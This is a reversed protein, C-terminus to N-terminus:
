EHTARGPEARRRTSLTVNFVAGSHDHRNSATIGGGMAEIFGKCIALENYLRLVDALILRAAQM